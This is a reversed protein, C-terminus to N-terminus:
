LPLSAYLSIYIGGVCIILQPLGTAQETTVPALATKISGNAKSPTVSNTSGNSSKWGYDPTKPPGQAFDSPERQLPQRQKM